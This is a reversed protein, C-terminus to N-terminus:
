KREYIEKNDKIFKLGYSNVVYWPVNSEDHYTKDLYKYFPGNNQDSFAGAWYGRSPGGEGSPHSLDWVYKVIDRRRVGNVGASLVMKLAMYTKYGWTYRMGRENPYSIVHSKRETRTGISKLYEPRRKEVSSSTLYLKTSLPYNRIADLKQVTMKDINGYCYLRNTVMDPLVKDLDDFNNDSCDFVKITGFHIYPPLAELKKSNLSVYSANIKLNKDISYDRIKYKECWEEIFKVTGVGIGALPKVGGRSVENIFERVIM